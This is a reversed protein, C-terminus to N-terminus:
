PGEEPPAAFGHQELLARGSPSLLFDAFQKAEGRAASRTILFLPRCLPYRREACGRATPEIGDLRLGKIKLGHQRGESLMAISVYGIAQPDSSVYLLVALDSGLEVSNSPLLPAIGFHEDFQLRATRSPARLVPIPTGLATAAGLDRWRDVRGEFLDHVQRASLAALPNRENVILALGDIALLRARLSRSEDANLPRVSLAIDAAGSRVANIGADSGGGAVRVVIDADQSFYVAAEKLAHLTASSGAVNLGAAAWASWLATLLICACRYLRDGM